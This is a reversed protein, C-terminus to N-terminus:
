KGTDPAGTMAFAPASVTERIFREPMDGKQILKIYLEERSNAKLASALLHLKDGFQRVQFKRPLKNALTDWQQTSLMPILSSISSRLPRPISGFTRWVSNFWIYRNYGAFLEDGGDGSLAVSVHRRTILSVLHTPLQSSDAFPEDYLEALKPVLELADAASFYESIHDTGLIKAVQEAHTAENFQDESFGITFTKVPTNSQAQMLATVLTSDIGGSLFAGLPVDAVMRRKIADKLLTELANITSEVGNRHQLSADWGKQAVDSLSWYNSQSLKGDSSFKLIHGPSLKHVGKYISLPSPVCSYGFFYALANECIQPQWGEVAHFAKLESAFLLRSDQYTWYIPKIGIRDRILFLNRESQDWLAIAFMGILRTATAKVGWQVFGALIVETDSHGRFKHGLAELEARLERFNYVEGNYVM